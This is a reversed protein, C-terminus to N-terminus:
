GTMAASGEATLTAPVRQGLPAASVPCILHAETLQHATIQDCAVLGDVYLDPCIGCTMEVRGDRVARLYARHRGYLAITEPM